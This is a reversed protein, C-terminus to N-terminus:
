EFLGGYRIDVLRLYQEAMLEELLGIRSDEEFSEM